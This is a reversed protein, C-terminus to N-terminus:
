QKMSAVSLTPSWKEVRISKYKIGHKKYLKHLAWKPMKKGRFEKEFEKCRQILSM